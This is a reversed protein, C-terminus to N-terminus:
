LYNIEQKKGILVDFREKYQPGMRKEVIYNIKEPSSGMNRMNRMGEVRGM